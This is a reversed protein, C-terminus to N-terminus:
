REQLHNLTTNEIEVVKMYRDLSEMPYLYKPNAIFESSKKLNFKNWDSALYSDYLDDPVYIIGDTEFHTGKFSNTGFPIVDEVELVLEKLSTNLYFAYDRISSVSIVLQTISNRCYEAETTEDVDIIDSYKDITPSYDALIDETLLEGGNQQIARRIITKNIKLKSFEDALM